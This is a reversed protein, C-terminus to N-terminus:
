LAMCLSRCHCAIIFFTNSFLISVRLSRILVSLIDFSL